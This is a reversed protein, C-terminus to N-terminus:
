SGLTCFRNDTGNALSRRQRILNSGPDLLMVYQEGLENVCWLLNQLKLNGHVLRNKHLVDLPELTQRLLDPLETFRRPGVRKLWASLLEGQVYDRMIGRRGNGFTGAVVNRPLGPHNVAGLLRVATFLREVGKRDRLSEGGLLKLRVNRDGHTALYTHGLASEGLKRVITIDGLGMGPELEEAPNFGHERIARLDPGVDPRWAVVADALAEVAEAQVCHDVLARAFSAKAGVGGVESPNLGLLKTSLQKLEDLDFLTELESCLRDLEM